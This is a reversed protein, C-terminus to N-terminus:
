DSKALFKDELTLAFVQKIFNKPNTFNENFWRTFDVSEETVNRPDSHMTNYFHNYMVKFGNSVVTELVKEKVNNIWEGNENYVSLFQNKYWDKSSTIRKVNHNEPVDPNFNITRILDILERNEIFSKMQENTLHNHSEKGFSNVTINNQNNQQNILQIYNNSTTPQTTKDVLSQSIKEMISILKDLKNDTNESTIQSANSTTSNKAPHKKCVKKHTYYNSASNFKKDCWECQKADSNYQKELKKLLTDRPTNSLLEQCPNVTQLHKQLVFKRICKYGCRECSFEM